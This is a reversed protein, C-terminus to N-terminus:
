VGLTTRVEETSPPPMSFIERYRSWAAILGAAWDAFRMSTIEFSYDFSNELAEPAGFAPNQVPWFSGSMGSAGLRVHVPLAGGYTTLLALQAELYAKWGKIMDDGYITPRGQWDNVIWRDVAWVEGTDMFWMTAQTGESLEPRLVSGCYTLLGGSTHGWSFGMTHGLIAAHAADFDTSLWKDPLMRVFRSPGEKLLIRGSGHFPENVIFKTGEDFWVSPDDDRHPRWPLPSPQVQPVQRIILEIAAKLQKALSGRAKRLVDTPVGAPLSFSIPGRRGRM